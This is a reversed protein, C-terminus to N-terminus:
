NYLEARFLTVAGSASLLITPLVTIKSHMLYNACGYTIFPTSLLSIAIAFLKEKGMYPVETRIDRKEICSRGDILLHHLGASVGASLTAIKLPIVEKGKFYNTALAIGGNVAVICLGHIFFHKMGKQFISPCDYPPTNRTERKKKPTTSVRSLWSGEPPNRPSNPPTTESM